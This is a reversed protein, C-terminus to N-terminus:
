EQRMAKYQATLDEGIKVVEKVIARLLAEHMVYLAEDELIDETLKNIEDQMMEEEVTQLYLGALRLANRRIHQTDRTLAEIREIFAKKSESM